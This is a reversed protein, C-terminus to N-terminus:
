RRVISCNCLVVTALIFVGVPSMGKGVFSLLIKIKRWLLGFYSM